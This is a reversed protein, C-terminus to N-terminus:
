SRTGDAGTLTPAHHQRELKKGAMDQVHRATDAGFKVTLMDLYERRSFYTQFAQDRFALVDHASVYKTPLPLADKAHQSYATWSEPLPWGETLARQYLASGPYAMTCYFNAFECNLETAVDLTAQMTQGDDEPLGFIYNAIVNIGADRVRGITRGIQDQEFTKLVDKRVRDSGSEIGFCLWRIGARRLLDEMGDKVSDVRAYAWINLDYNREILLECVRTVHRKNLVFMEDAFKINRIGYELVLRDIDAVITEPSWFRYSNVNPAYGL